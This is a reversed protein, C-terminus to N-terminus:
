NCIKSGGTPLAQLVEEQPIELKIAIQESIVDKNINGPEICLAKDIKQPVARLKGKQEVLYLKLEVTKHKVDGVVGFTGTKMNGKKIVQSIQFVDIIVKKKKERWARSFSGTFIAIEELDKESPSESEIVAFPSGPEKTHMVIFNKGGKILEKVIEENQEASKGGIVLKKSSTFFWRYKMYDEEKEPKSLLKKM